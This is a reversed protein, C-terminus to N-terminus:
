EIVPLARPECAWRTGDIRNGSVTIAFINIDADEPLTLKGAGPAIDFGLRYLYTFTYADNRGNMKHRHNGIHAITGDKVFSKTKGAWAWQARFGSYYPVVAEYKRGDVDFVAKRDGRSSSALIYVKNYDGQPLDVTVAEKCNLVNKVDPEGRRYEIGGHVIVEPMLEAAYSNCEKDVKAVSKFPDSSISNQNVPFDVFANEIAPAAVPAEALTIKYTKPAFRGADVLLRNGEFRAEGVPEEIGNVEEASVIRVPFALEAGRVERGTTQFVRVIYGSGDEAKKLAKVAIQPTSAAVFSFRRGLKGPHKPTTFSLLPQNLLEGKEVVGARNHDGDHGVLSYTMTHRGFDLDRQDAYRKETSPTHLLSLRLTNDAPKDWGYKSDNLVAIGYDGDSLDAWHHAFTEHARQHNTPRRQNGIGIDYVAEEASVSMPFEAKLLADPTKWDIDAVIDIREDDGGDTLRIYQVLRSDGYRREVKLSARAAGCEAVSIRVDTDVPEPTQDLTAKHIEWAPYRNSVNPTLVALRFAKGKEVLDRGNRKDIVSAIDGNADLTVKYVWNELTNGSARLVKGKGAKGARVDYVAYSVPEMAAAFLVTARAGDRAVIQAPVAKGDPAYVAVGEAEAPLDVTAEVLSRRSYAAPNYVLVPSGKARTDMVSAAAGASALIVDCFQGQALFEDNWSYTYAEWISTGTLDDHFQHWLFRKWADNLAEKPYPVAGMWDAIVASREAADALQENRRNYLKMAAQSTYCGTAHVDMLLEGNWVPLEPHSSYPLYDKYLRDSTASIIEVPGNGQLGLELARVSEITPAGGTDGTGYYHYVANLPNSQAIDQLYKSHSLDEYRWKTTYNHADMVAMIRSGDVGQWLGIEFPIKSTGHFPRHRWMLKQTSFGILGSHAAITPLTWGFGFCDPLFIDTGEVGFERRYFHQGYLINRTFSEASPINPDTADWTSGTVHWRGERIYRKILEYQHPYYEKMWQYKIGGEFNFVYDPYTGLLFLNQDLTKPIYERISRQVDWNWQSDFHANSVLYAKPSNQSFVHASILVSLFLLLIRKM